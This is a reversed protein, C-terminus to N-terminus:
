KPLGLGGQYEELMRNLVAALRGREHPTMRPAVSTLRGAIMWLEDESATGAEALNIEIRDAHSSALPEREGRAVGVASGAAWGLWEDLKPLTSPRVPRGSQMAYFTSRMPSNNVAIGLELVRKHVATFLRDLDDGEVQVGRRRAGSSDVM